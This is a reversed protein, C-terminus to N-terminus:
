GVRRGRIVKEIRAVREALALEHADLALGALGRAEGVRRPDVDPNTLVLHATAEAWAVVEHHSRFSPVPMSEPLTGAHHAAGGRRVALAKLERANHSHSICFGDALVVAARCPSGDVNREPCRRRPLRKENAPGEGPGATVAATEGRAPIDDHPM